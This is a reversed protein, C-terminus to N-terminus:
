SLFGINHLIGVVMSREVQRLDKVVPVTSVLRTWDQCGRQVGARYAVLQKV